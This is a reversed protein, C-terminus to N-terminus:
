SKQVGFAQFVTKSSSKLKQNMEESVQKEANWFSILFNTTQEQKQSKLNEASFTLQSAPVFMGKVHTQLYAHAGDNPIQKRKKLEV